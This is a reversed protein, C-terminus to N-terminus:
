TYVPSILAFMRAAGQVGHVATLCEQPLSFEPKLSTHMVPVAACRICRICHRVCVSQQLCGANLWEAMHEGFCALQRAMAGPVQGEPVARFVVPEAAAIHARWAPDAGTHEAACAM